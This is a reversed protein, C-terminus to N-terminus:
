EWDQFVYESTRNRTLLLKGADEAKLDGFLMNNIMKVIPMEVNYKESLALAAKASYVGEVVMKVKDMAEKYSMGQGMYYGAMRNRSHISSCTVILDGIGSLGGFTEADGGMAVGLKKIEAIGRTIIAAKANDGYGLGDAIGAALAIVNKLSGGLEIGLVDPSTYVRFYDSMFVDQVLLADEKNEAGAVVTTPMKKGVEEAHSPGSIVAVKAKPIEDLIVDTLVMLTSEEIGKSANVILQGERVYPAITKATSRVFPSPVVMVILEAFDVAEKADNTLRIDDSIKVGPLKTKHEREEDLMKLEDKDVSWIMVNHGNGSLLVSIATGWSGAGLISVNM